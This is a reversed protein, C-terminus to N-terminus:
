QVDGYFSLLTKGYKKQKSLFFSGHQEPLKEKMDHQVVIIYNRHLIDYAELTKLAKKALGSLYPPDIYIVHFRQNKDALFKIAAFADMNFVDYRQNSKIYSRIELLSANEHIIEYRQPDKEIMQVFEAGRSLA